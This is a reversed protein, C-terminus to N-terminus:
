RVAPRPRRGRAASIARRAGARPPATRARHAGQAGQRARARDARRPRRADLDLGPSSRSACGAPTSCSSSRSTADRAAGGLRARTWWPRAGRRDAPVLRAQAAAAARAGRPGSQARGGRPARPLPLLEARAALKRAVSVPDLGRAHLAALFARVRAPTPAACATSAARGDLFRRSTSRPRDPLQPAHPALRQKEVALHRLFAALPDKMRRHDRGGAQLRVGRARLTRVPRGRAVRETLFTAGCKPCPEAVPRQWVVFKCDPYASCGFFSGAGAQSRREVLQGACGTEPCAIGSRSRSPRRASRTARARSSSASAATSSSWRSAAPRASRTPPSTRPASAARCTGSTSASRIPRARSSSASAGAASSSTARRM